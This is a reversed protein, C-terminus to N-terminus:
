HPESLFFLMHCVEVRHLPHARHRKVCCLQCTLDPLFCERCRYQPSGSAPKQRLVCDPCDKSGLFDARGAWRIVEELYMQRHVEKWFVHPRRQLSILNLGFCLLCSRVSVGSRVRKKGKATAPTDEPHANLDEMIDSDLVEDYWEGDPDLAYQSDDTPLWSPASNWTEDAERQPLRATPVSLSDRGVRVIRAERAHVTTFDDAFPIPDHDAGGVGVRQRKAPRSQAMNNKSAKRENTSAILGHSCFCRRAEVLFELLM